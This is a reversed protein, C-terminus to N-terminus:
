KLNRIYKKSASELNRYKSTKYRIGNKHNVKGNEDIRQLFSSAPVIYESLDLNEDLHQLKNVYDDRVFIANLTYCVLTYGKEKALKVMSLLSSGKNSVYEGLQRKPGANICEIVIVIPKAEMSKFINYDVSDVDICVLAFNDNNVDFKSNKLLNDVSNPHNSNVSVFCNKTEVWDLKGTLSKMEDCRSRNSEILIAKFKGDKWLEFVNSLHVGDWAGFEMVIGSTVELENLIQQIIGDEGNQSIINKAFRLYPSGKKLNKVKIYEEIDM